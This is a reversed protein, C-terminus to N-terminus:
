LVTKFNGDLTQKEWTGLQADEYPGPRDKSMVKGDDFIEHKQYQFFVQEEKWKKKGPWPYTDQGQYSVPKETWGTGGSGMGLRALQQWRPELMKFEQTRYQVDGSPPDRYSFGIPEITDDNGLKNESYWRNVIKGNFVTAGIEKHQQHADEAAQFPEDPVKISGDHMGVFPSPKHALNKGAVINREAVINKKVALNKKVLLNGDYIIMNKEVLVNGGIISTSLSFRHSQTPSASEDQYVHWIDVARNVWMRVKNGYLQVAKRGKSADITIDGPQMVGGGTRLYIESALMACESQKALCVVGSSVVDEGYQDKYMQVKGTAKSELLIGGQEGNGALLQMNKEAKIRVDKENASIDVSNKARTICDWGMNVVRKGAQLLIDGPATLQLQGGVFAIQAGYGCGFSMSGDEHQVWFAERQFYDVEAYRHDIYIKRPTPYEMFDKSALSGFDLKDQVKTFFQSLESEQHLKYDVKHYHFPHLGKWNYNFALLDLVGAVRLLHQEEGSVTVDKIKHDEGGGFKSSFKYNDKRADDGESQDEQLRKRKPNPILVRHGIYVSKASRVTWSGDMAILEHFLGCDPDEDKFFRKGSKKAPKILLRQWGQGLYGGYGMCRMVPQLDEESDDLDIKGKPLDYHVPKDEFEHPWETGSDYLGIAEWPYIPRGELLQNEGEDDRSQLWWAFTQIDMNLGALRCYDDWLNLFLGCSESVRLYAQFCDILVGIGTETMIGWELAESDMPSQSNWVRMGGERYMETVPRMHADERKLGTNGGQQIWDPVNHKEAGTCLEDPIAGLIVGYHVNAPLSVLVTSNPAYVSTPRPGLPVWATGNSSLACCPVAGAGNALLVRYYNYTPVAHTIVGVTTPPQKELSLLKGRWASDPDNILGQLADDPLRRSVEETLDTIRRDQPPRPGGPGAGGAHGKDLNSAFPGPM